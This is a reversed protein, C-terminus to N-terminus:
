SPNKVAVYLKDVSGKERCSAQIWLKFKFGSDTLRLLLQARPPPTGAPAKLQSLCASLSSEQTRLEMKSCPFGWGSNFGGSARISVGAYGRESDLFFYVAPDKLGSLRGQLDAFITVTKGMEDFHGDRYNFPVRVLRTKIPKGPPAPPVPQAPEDGPLHPGYVVSGEAM